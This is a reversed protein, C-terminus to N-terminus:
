RQKHAGKSMCEKICANSYTQPCLTCLINQESKHIEVMHSALTSKNKFTVEFEECMSVYKM